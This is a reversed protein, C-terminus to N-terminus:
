SSALTKDAQLGTGILSSSLSSLVEARRSFYKKSFLRDFERSRTENSSLYRTRLAM